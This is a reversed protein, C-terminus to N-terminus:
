RRGKQRASGLGRSIGDAIRSGLEEQSESRQADLSVKLTETHRLAATALPQLVVLREAVQRALHEAGGVFGAPLNIRLREIRAEPM